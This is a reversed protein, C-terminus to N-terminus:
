HGSGNSFCTGPESRAPFEVQIIASDEGGRGDRARITLAYNNFQGDPYAHVAIGGTNETAVSGDGWEFVYDIDDGDPDVARASVVVEFAEQDVSLLRALELAPPENQLQVVENFSADEGGSDRVFGSITVNRVPLCKSSLLTRAVVPSRSLGMMMSMSSTSYFAIPM